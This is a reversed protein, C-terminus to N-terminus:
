VYWAGKFSSSATKKQCILFRINQSISHHPLSLFLVVRGRERQAKAPPHKGTKIMFCKLYQAAGQHHRWIDLSSSSHFDTFAPMKSILNLHSQLQKGESLVCTSSLLASRFSSSVAGCWSMVMEAVLQLCPCWAKHVGSLVCHGKVVWCGARWFFCPQKKKELYVQPDFSEVRPRFHIVQTFCGARWLLM